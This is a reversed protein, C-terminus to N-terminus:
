IGHVRIQKMLVPFLPVQGAGGTLVGIMSIRGAARVARLSRELTGAGGVEVVHDVGRGGTLARAERDWEPTTRYNIGEAAGLERARALKEDSSSTAIVRAGALRAFQLACLSVGGTGEVAVHGGAEGGEQQIPANWGTFAACPPTGGEEDTLHEPVHVGGEGSLAVDEALVGAGGGGLASRGAADTLEGEIWEQ